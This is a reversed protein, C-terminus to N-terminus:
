NAVTSSAAATFLNDWKPQRSPDIGQWAAHTGPTDQIEFIKEKVCAQVAALANVMKPTRYTRTMLISDVSLAKLSQGTEGLNDYSVNSNGYVAELKGLTGETVGLLKYQGKPLEEIWKVPKGAVSLIADTQGAALMAIAAVQDDAPVIEFNIGALQNIVKASVVSGGWATVRKGALEKVLSIPNIGTTYVADKGMFANSLAKEEAPSVLISAVVPVIVHVQEAHLALLAQVRSMAPNSMKELAAVDAQVIGAMAQNKLIRRLNAVSGGDPKQTDPDLYPSITVVGSQDCFQSMETVVPYYTGGTGGSGITVTVTEEASVPIAMLALIAGMASVRLIDMAKM